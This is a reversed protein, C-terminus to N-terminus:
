TKKRPNRTSFSAPLPLPCRGVSIAANADIADVLGRMADGVLPFDAGHRRAHHEIVQAQVACADTRVMKLDHGRALVAPAAHLLFIGADTTM